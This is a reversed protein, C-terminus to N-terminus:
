SLIRYVTSKGVKTALAIDSISLGQKRLNEVESKKARAIEKAKNHSLEIGKTKAINAVTQPSIGLKQGISKASAGASLLRVVEGTAARVNANNSVVPLGGRVWANRIQSSSTGVIKAAEHTTRKGDWLERALDTKSKERWCKGCDPLSGLKGADVSVVNTYELPRLNRALRYVDGTALDEYLMPWCDCPRAIPRFEM